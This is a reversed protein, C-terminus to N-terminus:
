RRRATMLVAALSFRATGGLGEVLRRVGAEFAERNAPDIRFYLSTTRFHDRLEDATQEVTAVSTAVQVDDFLEAADDNALGQHGGMIWDWVASANERRKEAGALITELEVEPPLDELKPAHKRLLERFGDSVAESRADRLGRHALLALLGGPELHSAAKRWGIAPDVWHFATASFLASFASEPLSVEEFTGLHFQVRETTGLRKRAVEIMNPGPEVADVQLGRAVLLETLKGTGSGVELVRSSSDLGGRAIAADVLAAPYSPRVDDYAAAVDDFVQGFDRISRAPDV